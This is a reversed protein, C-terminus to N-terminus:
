PSRALLHLAARRTYRLRDPVAVPILVVIQETRQERLRDLFAL